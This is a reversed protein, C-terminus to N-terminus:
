RGRTEAEVWKKFAKPVDTVGWVEIGPVDYPHLESLRKV